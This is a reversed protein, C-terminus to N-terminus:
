FARIAHGEVARDNWNSLFLLGYLSIEVGQFKIVLDEVLNFPLVTFSKRKEM